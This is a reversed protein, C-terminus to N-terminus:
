SRAKLSHLLPLGFPFALGFALLDAVPQALQVGTLGFLAPLLLIAPIFFLGQRALAMISAQRSMGLSQHAMNNIVAWGMTPLLLAQLRLALAGIANVDADGPRFLNVLAPAFAIFVAAFVALGITSVKLSFLIAARVRDFRKAGWNFGCVPQFGQFFGILASFCFGMIRSVVSM